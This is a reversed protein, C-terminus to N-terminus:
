PESACGWVEFLVLGDKVKEGPVIEPVPFHKDNIDLADALGDKHAKVSAEYNNTDYKYHPPLFTIRIRTLETIGLLHARAEKAAYCAEFRARSTAKTKAHHTRSRFNSRLERAPWGCTFTLDPKTM